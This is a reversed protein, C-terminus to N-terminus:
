LWHDKIYYEIKEKLFWIENETLSDLNSIEEVDVFICKTMKDM